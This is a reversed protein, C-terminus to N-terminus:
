TTKITATVGNINIGLSRETPNIQELSAELVTITNDVSATGWQATVDFTRNATTSVTAGSNLVQINDMALLNSMRALGSSVIAGSAGVSRITLTTDIEFYSGTPISNTLSASGSCIITGGIAMWMGFWAGMLARVLGNKEPYIVFTVKQKDEDFSIRESLWKM